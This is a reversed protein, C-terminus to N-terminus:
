TSFSPHVTEALRDYFIPFQPVVALLVDRTGDLFESWIELEPTHLTAAMGNRSVAWFSAKQHQILPEVRLAHTIM